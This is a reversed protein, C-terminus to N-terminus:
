RARPAIDYSSFVVSEATIMGMQCSCRDPAPCHEAVWWALGDVRTVFQDLVAEVTLTGGALWARRDLLTTSAGPNAGGGALLGPPPLRALAPDIAKAIAFMVEIANGGIADADFRQALGARCVDATSSIRAAAGETVHLLGRWRVALRRLREGSDPTDLTAEPEPTLSHFTAQPGLVAGFRVGDRVLSKLEAQLTGDPRPSQARAAAAACLLVVALLAAM